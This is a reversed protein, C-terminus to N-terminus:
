GEGRLMRIEAKLNQIEEGLTNVKENSATLQQHMIKQQVQRDQLLLANQAAIGKNIKKYNDVEKRLFRTYKALSNYKEEM